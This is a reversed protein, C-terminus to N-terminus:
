VEGIKVRLDSKVRRYNAPTIYQRGGKYSHVNQFFAVSLGSIKSERYAEANIGLESLDPLPNTKVRVGPALTHRVNELPADLNIAHISFVDTMGPRDDLCTVALYEESGPKQAAFVVKEYHVYRYFSLSRWDLDQSASIFAESDKFRSKYSLKQENFKDSVSHRPNNIDMYSRVPLNQEKDGFEPFFGFRTELAINTDPLVFYVSSDHYSLCDNAQLSASMRILKAGTEASEELAYCQAHNSPTLQIREYLADEPQASILFINSENFTTTLFPINQTM